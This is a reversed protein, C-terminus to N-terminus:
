AENPLVFLAKSSGRIGPFLAWSSTPKVGELLAGIVRDPIMKGRAQPSGRISGALLSLSYSRDLVHQRSAFAQPQSQTEDSCGNM